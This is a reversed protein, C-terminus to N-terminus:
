QGSCRQFVKQVESSIEEFPAALVTRRPNFVISWRADLTALQLRVSERLRRKIRNRLVSKGLARPVTFGVKPGDNEARALCFAVFCKGSVRFGESYVKRFDSSRLIRSGKSFPFTGTGESKSLTVFPEKTASLSSTAVKPGAVRCYQRVM